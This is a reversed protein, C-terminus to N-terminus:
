YDPIHNIYFSFFFQFYKTLVLQTLKLVCLWFESVFCEQITFSTSLGNLIHLLASVNAVIKAESYQADYFLESQELLEILSTRQKTEAESHVLFEELKVCGDEFQQSYERGKDRDSCLCAYTISLHCWKCNAYAITPM